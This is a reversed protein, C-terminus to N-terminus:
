AAGGAKRFYALLDASIYETRLRQGLTNLHYNSNYVYQDTFIYTAVKSIRIAHVYQDAASEYATQAKGGTEQSALNLSNKNVAAFSLLVTGGQARVMDFVRNLKEAGKQIVSPMSAFNGGGFPNTGNKKGADIYSQNTTKYSSTMGVKRLSYDGYFNVTDTTFIEYSYSKGGKERASNFSAFSSFFKTYQRLDVLSFADYAGEFIQWLTTNIENRVGWQYESAEPEHLLIDGERIFHSAVEIYFTAATSANTGYNVVSYECGGVKLLEELYPSDIGYASNSGSTIVIKKGPATMLREFKIAYTGNRGTSYYPLRTAMMYITSFSPCSSFSNDTVKLISDSFYVNRLLPCNVFAMDDVTKLNRTLVVTELKMCNYFTYADIGTVPYRDLKEPIVITSDSGQYATLIAGGDSVRYRFASADTEKEWMCYLSIAGREPMLVNWGPAYYTGSGDAETNYGVLVYGDRRFQGNNILTNPCLYYTSSFYATRMNDSGTQADVGGNMHYLLVWKGTPVKVTTAPDVFIKGFNAFLVTDESLTFTYTLETSIVEGGEAIPKGASFGLFYYADDLITASVTIERESWLTGNEVTAEVKGAAGNESEVSFACSTLRHSTLEITTPYFVEKLTVRGNELVAGSSISDVSVGEEVAVEFSVEEGFAVEKQQEGVVTVGDCGILSVTVTSAHPTWETEAPPIVMDKVSSLVSSFFAGPSSCGSFLLLVLTLLFFPLLFRCLPRRQTERGDKKPLCYLIQKMDKEREPGKLRIATIM